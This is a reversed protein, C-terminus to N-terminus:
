YPADPGYLTGDPSYHFGRWFETYEKQSYRNPRSYTYCPIYFGHRAVHGDLYALNMGNNHRYYLLNEDLHHYMGGSGDHAYPNIEVQNPVHNEVIVAHGSPVESWKTNVWGYYWRFDGASSSWRGLAYDTLESTNHGQWRKSPCNLVTGPAPRYGDWTDCPLYGYGRNGLSVVSYGGYWSGAYGNCPVPWEDYDQAYMIYGLGIQKLNAQCSAQRGKERAQNLAPMLISALIAIIAIVVLLEILTFCKRKM